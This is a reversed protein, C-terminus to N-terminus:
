EGRPHEEHRDSVVTSQSQIVVGSLRAFLLGGAICNAPRCPRAGNETRLVGDMSDRFEDLLPSGPAWVGFEMAAETCAGFEM